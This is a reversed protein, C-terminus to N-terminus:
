ELEKMTEPLPPAVQQIPRRREQQPSWSGFLKAFAEAYTPAIVRYVTAMVTTLEFEQVSTYYSGLFNEIQYELHVDLDARKLQDSALLIVNQADLPAGLIM